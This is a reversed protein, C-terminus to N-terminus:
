TQQDNHTQLYSILNSLAEKTSGSFGTTDFGVLTELDNLMDKKSPGLKRAQQKPAPIYVGEKVLKSRVSRVPKQLLEAIQDLGETGFEEYLQLLQETQEETYNQQTNTM